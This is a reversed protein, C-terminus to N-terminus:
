PRKLRAIAAMLQKDTTIEGLEGKGHEDVSVLIDPVIGRGQWSMGNPSSMAGMTLKLATDFELPMITEISALGSTPQGLVVANRSEQLAKALAEAGAGTKGNVLVVLRLSQLSPRAPADIQASTNGAYDEPVARYIRNMATNRGSVQVVVAGPKVFLAALGVTATLLGGPSDRLDLVLSHLPGGNDAELKAVDALVEGRTRDQFQLLRFYGVGPSLLKASGVTMMKIPERAVVFKLLEPVGPRRVQLTTKTGAEGRLANVSQALSLSSTSTGDISVILDGARLDARDAPAGKIPSVVEVLGDGGAHTKMELGIGALKNPTDGRLVRWEAANFYHSTSDLGGLAAQFCREIRSAHDQSSQSAVSTKCSAELQGAKIPRVYNRSVLRSFSRWSPSAVVREYADEDDNAPTARALGVSALLIAMGTLLSSRWRKQSGPNRSVDMAKVKM